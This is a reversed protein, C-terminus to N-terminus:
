FHFVYYVKVVNLQEFMHDLFKGLIKNIFKLGWNMNVFLIRSITRKQKLLSVQYLEGERERQREPTVEMDTGLLYRDAWCTYLFHYGNESRLVPKVRWFCDWLCLSFYTHQLHIRRTVNSGRRDAFCDCIWFFSFLLTTFSVM